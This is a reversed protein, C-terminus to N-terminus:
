IERSTRSLHLSCARAALSPQPPAAGTIRAAAVIALPATAAAAHSLSAIAGTTVIRPLCTM